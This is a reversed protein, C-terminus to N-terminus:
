YWWSKKPRRTEEINMAQMIDMEFTALKPEFTVSEVVSPPTDKVKNLVYGSKRKYDLTEEADEPIPITAGSRVSVRVRESAETYRWEVDTPKEDTPDVLKIDTTVLLPMERKVMMGPYTKSEGMLKYETNLGEVIVWNREQVIMNIFGQKGKDPGKMIEVVDGRFWMWDVERIPEVVTETFQSSPSNSIWYNQTWPRELGHRRIRVSEFKPIFEPGCPSKYKIKTIKRKIYRQPFNSYDTTYRGLGSHIESPDHVVPVRRALNALSLRM